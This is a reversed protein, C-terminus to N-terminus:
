RGGKARWEDQLRAAINSRCALNLARGIEAESKFRGSRISNKVADLEANQQRQDAEIEALLTAVNM